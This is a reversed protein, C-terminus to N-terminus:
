NSLTQNDLTTTILRYVALGLFDPKNELWQVVDLLPEHLLDELKLKSFKNANCPSM